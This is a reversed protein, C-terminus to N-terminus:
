LEVIAMDSESGAKAQAPTTVSTMVGLAPVEGAMRMRVTLANYAQTRTRVQRYSAQNGPTGALEEPEFSMPGGEGPEGSIGPAGPEVGAAAANGGAAGIAELDLGIQAESKCGERVPIAQEFSQLLGRANEFTGAKELWTASPLVVDARNVLRGTTAGLTDILVVFKGDLANMLGDTAWESPYNGTLVVGAVRGGSRLQDVMGAFDLVPGLGKAQAIAELVRRVGRANPAKEAYMTFSKPDTAKAGPPFVKDQGSVPVPGVGIVAQPDIALVGMALAYADECSLMPSVMLAVRRGPAAAAKIGDVAADYARAWDSAVPVGFQKYMPASLRGGDGEKHVHKWSYRVEDTIWWRNVAMNTRPKFRYVKGENHFVTINDGSATYGDISPTEKLFWVRQVFLFDKDLLAGVPCLDAVNGSLENNLAVGPFVDIEERNGRGQVLLESTGTVERTFRVCRTCMICRDSYLYIHEGLDKKPNKVKTEEFRSASRGYHYSYDQLSCEGAQDCVPCDLPHNILLYEMVAKQNQVARPSDTYVVWGDACATQCTPVLKGGMLPELTNNNKPNPAWVEGLCIRCSAVISLGDHYCYQPIEIDHRNAVQIIMEGPSFECERGNITIKPM